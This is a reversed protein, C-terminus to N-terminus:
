DFIKSYKKQQELISISTSSCNSEVSGYTTLPKMRILYEAFLPIGFNNELFIETARKTHTHTIQSSYQTDLPCM